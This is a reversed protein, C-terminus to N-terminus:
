RGARAARLQFMAWVSKGSTGEEAVGWAHSAVNVIVLGRGTLSPENLPERPLAPVTCSGDRVTLLVADPHGQLLVTFATQAHVVANTALESAVLRVDDVLYLLRHEVLHEVVFARAKTASRADAALVTEHSWTAEQGM